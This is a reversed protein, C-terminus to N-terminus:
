LIPSLTTWVEMQLTTLEERSSKLECQWKAASLQLLEWERTKSVLAKERLTAQASLEAVQKELSVNSAKMDVLQRDARACMQLSSLTLPFSLFIVDVSGSYSM